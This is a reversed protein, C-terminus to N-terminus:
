ASIRRICWGLGELLKHQSGFSQFPLCFSGRCFKLIATNKKKLLDNIANERLSDNVV